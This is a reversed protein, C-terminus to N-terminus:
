FPLCVPGSEPLDQGQMRRPVHSLLVDWHPSPLSRGQADSFIGEHRGLVEQYTALHQLRPFWPAKPWHPTIMTVLARPEADLKGIVSDILCSPPHAWLNGHSAWERALANTERTFFAPCQANHASAFLDWTFPGFIISFREFAEGNLACEEDDFSLRPLVPTKLPRPAVGGATRKLPLRGNRWWRAQHTSAFSRRKSEM